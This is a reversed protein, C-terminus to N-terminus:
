YIAILPHRYGLFLSPHGLNLIHDDPTIKNQIKYLKATHSRRFKEIKTNKTKANVKKTIRGTLDLVKLLSETKSDRLM